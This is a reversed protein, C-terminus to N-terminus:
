KAEKTHNYPLGYNDACIPGYGRKVSEKVSLGRGCLGCNGTNRGYTKLEKIPDKAFEKL